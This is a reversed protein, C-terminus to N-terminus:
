NETVDEYEPMAVHADRMKKHSSVSWITIESMSPVMV